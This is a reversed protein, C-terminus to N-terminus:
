LKLETASTEVCSVCACIEIRTVVYGYCSTWQVVSIKTWTYQLSFRQQPAFQVLKNHVVGDVLRPTMQRGTKVSFVSMKFM